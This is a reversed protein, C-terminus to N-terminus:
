GISNWFSACNLWSEHDKYAVMKSSYQPAKADDSYITKVLLRQSMVQLRYVIECNDAAASM